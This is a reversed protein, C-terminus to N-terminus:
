VNSKRDSVIMGRQGFGIPAVLDILRTSLPKSGSSLILQTKPYMPTLDDFHPRKTSEDAPLDNVQEVKLLGYYRETDKPPRALGEVLDGGRLLFRRIQSQSIYIDRPSPIFKPRLFGHGEPQIDLYGKVQETPENAAQEYRFRSPGGGTDRPAHHSYGNEPQFNRQPQIQVEAAPKQEILVTEAVKEELAEKKEIKDTGKLTKTSPRSTAKGVIEDVSSSKKDAM